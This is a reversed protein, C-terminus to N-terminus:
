AQAAYGEETIAAVVQARDLTTNVTVLGTPLDVQVRATADQAQVAQTVAKVCHQCSMGQVTIQHTQQTNM